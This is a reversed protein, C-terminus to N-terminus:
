GKPNLEAPLGCMSQRSEEGARCSPVEDGTNDCAYRTSVGLKTPVMPVGTLSRPGVYPKHCTCLVRGLTPNSLRLQALHGSIETGSTQPGPDM